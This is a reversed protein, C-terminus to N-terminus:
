AERTWTVRASYGDEEFDIDLVGDYAHKVAEGIRRPLHIDTTAIATGQPDDEIAMIRNLPHERRETEEQHRALRLIEQRHARAFGGRLLLTGAPFKDNIRRCAPCLEERGAEPRGLWQWRGGRYVARCQPCQTGEELKLQRQYPDRIHDQQAHGAIRRSTPSRQPLVNSRKM